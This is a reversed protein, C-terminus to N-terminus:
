CNQLNVKKNIIILDPQKTSILYDTQIKFDWLHKYTENELISTANDIYWKNTDDFRFKKCLERHIVKGVWDHRTTYKKQALKSFESIIHTITKNSDICLM